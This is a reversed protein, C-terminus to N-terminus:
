GNQAKDTLAKHMQGITLNRKAMKQALGLRTAATKIIGSGLGYKALERVLKKKDLSMLWKHADNHLTDTYLGEIGDGGFLYHSDFPSGYSFPLDNDISMIKNDQGVIANGTHRDGNGMIMDMLMLKHASGSERGSQMAQAFKKSDQYPTSAGKIRQMVIAPKGNFLKPHQVIATVPVHDGMDFFNKALNYYIASGKAGAPSGSEAAHDSGKILVSSGQDNQGRYIDNASARAPKFKKEPDFYVGEILDKQAQDDYDHASHKVSLRTLKPNLGKKLSLDEAIHTFHDLYDDSVEPLAAKLVEKLPRTRDWDRLAAKLQNKHKSVIHEPVLAAGGVLQSPAVNGGGATLTKNLNSLAKKLDAVPDTVPDSVPDTDDSFIASDLEYRSENIIDKMSKTIISETPADLVGIICAKNCARLTLAARRAVTRELVNGKRALTAGEISVAVLIKEKRKHYYNIIASVAVAGPHEEDDFMEAQIYIYPVQVYDWYKRERDTSCEKRKLIKKAYTIKAVIDDGSKNSHEWNLVGKGEIFDDINCNEVTLQEGSSDILEASCIGDIKLGM